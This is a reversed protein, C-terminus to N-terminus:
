QVRTGGFPLGRKEAAQLLPSAPKGTAPVRPTKPDLLDKLYARVTNLFGSEPPKMVMEGHNDTVLNGEKNTLPEGKLGEILCREFEERILPENNV